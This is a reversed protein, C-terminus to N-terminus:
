RSRKGVLFTDDAYLINSFDVVDMCNEMTKKRTKQRNKETTTEKTKEKVEIDKPAM